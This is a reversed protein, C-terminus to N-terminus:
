KRINSIFEQYRNAYSVSKDSSIKYYNSYIQEVGDLIKNGDLDLIDLQMEAYNFSNFKLYNDKTNMGILLGCSILSTDLYDYEM